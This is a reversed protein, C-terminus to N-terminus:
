CNIDAGENLFTLVQKHGQRDVFLRIALRGSQDTRHEHRKDIRCGKGKGIYWFMLTRAEAEDYVLELVECCLVVGLEERL